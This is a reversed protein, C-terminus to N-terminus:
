LTVYCSSVDALLKLAPKVLHNVNELELGPCHFQSACLCPCLSGPNSLVLTYFRVRLFSVQSYQGGQGPELQHRTESPEFTLQQKKEM